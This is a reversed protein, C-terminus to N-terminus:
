EWIERSGSMGLGGHTLVACVVLGCKPNGQGVKHVKRGTGNMGGMDRSSSVAEEDEQHSWHEPTKGLSRPRPSAQSAEGGRSALGEGVVWQQAGGM